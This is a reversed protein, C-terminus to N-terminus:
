KLKEELAGLFYGCIFASPTQSSFMREVTNRLYGIVFTDFGSQESHEDTNM